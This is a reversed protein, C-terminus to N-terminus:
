LEGGFVRSAISVFDDREAESLKSLDPIERSKSAPIGSIAVSKGYKAPNLKELKWRIETSVGKAENEEIIRDLAEMLRKEEYLLYFSCRALYTEDAALAVQEELTCDALLEAEERKMNLRILRYVEKKKSEIDM